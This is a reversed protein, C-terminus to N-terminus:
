NASVQSRPNSSKKKKQNLEMVQRYALYYKYINGVYQVTEQGIEKAAVYEVNRFWLNPDLGQAEAQKRLKAIRNPGANYSAIAFLLKNKNDMKEDAFFHDVVFRLYKIGAHINNEANTEVDKIDVDAATTPKIQMVGVAGAHSRVNQDLRSEQFGQAGLMLYDFDYERGYRQFLAVLAKFKKLHEESTANKLYEANKLRNLVQNGFLTGAKHDKIYANVVEALKPSDKRFAWVIEGGTSVPFDRNVTLKDLVNAWFDATHSKVVTTGMLGANVMELIDEDELIEDVPILQILPKGSEKFQENLRTLSEYFSSSERVHVERGALDDLSAIPKSSPGTVVLDRLSTILPDSFEVSELLTRTTSVNAAVIDGRGELLSPLLQDRTVPIFAVHVKLAKAGLQRNVVNEFEKLLDYSAGHQEAGDLFYLMRNYVVLARIIRRETMGDFDGKWPKVQDEPPMVSDATEGNSGSASSSGQGSNDNSPQESCAGVLLGTILLGGIALKKKAFTM